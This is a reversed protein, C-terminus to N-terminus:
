FVKTKLNLIEVKLDKPNKLNEIETIGKEM